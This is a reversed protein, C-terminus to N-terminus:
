CAFSAFGVLDQDFAVRAGYPRGLMVYHKRLLPRELYGPIKCLVPNRLFPDSWVAKSLAILPQGELSIAGCVAANANCDTTFFRSAVSARRFLARSEYRLMLLQRTAFLWI